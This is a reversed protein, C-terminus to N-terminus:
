DTEDADGELGPIIDLYKGEMYITIDPYIDATLRLYYATEDFTFHGMYTKLIPLYANLDKRQM